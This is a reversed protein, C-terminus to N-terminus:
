IASQSFFISAKSAAVSRDHFMVLHDGGGGGGCLCFLSVRGVWVCFFFGGCGFDV